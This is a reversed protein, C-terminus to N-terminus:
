KWMKLVTLPITLRVPVEVTDDRILFRPLTTQVVIPEKIRVNQHRM